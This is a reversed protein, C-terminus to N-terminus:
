GNLAHSPWNDDSLTHGQQDQEHSHDRENGPLMILDLSTVLSLPACEAANARLPQAVLGITLAAFVFTHRISM